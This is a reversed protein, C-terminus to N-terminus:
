GEQAGGLDDLKVRLLGRSPANPALTALARTYAARAQETDGSAAYIDGRLEDYAAAFSGADVNALLALAGSDDKEELLLRALRLRADLKVVEEDSNDLVWHLHSKAAAVDGKQYNIKAMAMSALAAYPTDLYQGLLIAGDAAADDLQGSALKGMMVQYLESGSEAHSHQNAIWSRGGWLVAIGIMVGGILSWKNERWWKKIAEVQQEETTYVDM